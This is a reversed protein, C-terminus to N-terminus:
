LTVNYSRLLNKRVKHDPLVSGLCLYFRRSHDPHLFHSLEHAVVLEICEMSVAGLATSFTVVGKSTHCSGWRSKMKRYKVTPYKVGMEKFYTHYIRDLISPIVERCIALRLKEILAKKAETDCPNPLSLEVADGSIAATSESGERVRLIKDEGLIKVKDGDNYLSIKQTKYKQSARIIFDAKETIFDEIKKITVYKNASVYVVGDSKIRVNINKVNKVALQYEIVRGDALKVVNM